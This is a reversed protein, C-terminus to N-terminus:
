SIYGCTSWYLKTSVTTGQQAVSATAVTFASTTKTRVVPIYPYANYIGSYSFLDKDTLTHGNLQYNTDKYPKYLTINKFESISSTIQGWQECYGDSWLRYGSTGNAWTETVTIGGSSEGSSLLSQIDNYDVARFATKPRLNSMVGKTIDIYGVITWPRINDQYTNVNLTENYQAEITTPGYIGGDAGIMIYHDPANTASAVTKTVVKNTVAEINNLTGDLNRGNPILVKVGKDIWVTSGIYGFGNFVQDISTITGSSVTILGLPLSSRYDQLGSSTIVYVFNDDTNYYHWHSSTPTTTGSGVQSALRRAGFTGTGVDNYFLVFQETGSLNTLAMTLDSVTTLEKYGETGNPITVISGKKLTLGNNTLELKIRQPIELLCNTIKTKSFNVNEVKDKLNLIQAEMDITASEQLTNGVKYYIFVNTSQPQVTDSNGYIPNSLSADFTISKLYQGGSYTAGGIAENSTHSTTKLAGTQTFSSAYWEGGVSTVNDSFNYILAGEINPLGAENYRGLENINVNPQLINNTKPLYFSQNTEDLVFFNATGTTEFLQDYMDKNSIDMIKWGNSCQTYTIEVDSVTETVKKSGLKGKNNILKKYADPYESKLILSGQLEKGIKDVGELAQNTIIIDLLAIDSGYTQKDTTTNNNNTNDDDTIWCIWNPQIIDNELATNYEELTGIWDYVITGNQTKIGVATIVEEENKIITENDVYVTTGGTAEGGGTGGGAQGNITYVNGNKIITINEGAVLNGSHFIDNEIHHLLGEPSEKGYILTNEGFEIYGDSMTPTESTSNKHSIRGKTSGNKITIGETFSKFGEITETGTKHVLNSEDFPEDIQQQLETKIEQVVANTTFDMDNALESLKTPAKFEVIPTVSEAESDLILCETHEDIIGNELDQQYEEETGIWTFKPTNNKTIEGISQLNGDENYSVSVDDTQLISKITVYSLITGNINRLTLINDSYELSYGTSLLDAKNSLIEDLEEKLYVNTLDLNIVNNSDIVINEGATLLDQKTALLTVIEQETYHNDDTIVYLESSSLQSNNALENYQEKTLQNIILQKSINDQPM